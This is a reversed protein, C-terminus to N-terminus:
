AFLPSIGSEHLVSARGPDEHVAHALIELTRQYVVRGVMRPFALVCKAFAIFDSDRSAVLAGSGAMGYLSEVLEPSVRARRHGPESDAVHDDEEM